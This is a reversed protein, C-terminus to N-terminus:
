LEEITSQTMTALHMIESKSFLGNQDRQVEGVIIGFAMVYIRDSILFLEELESSIALVGLDEEKLDSILQYFESKAGVDIGRTPEDLILVKPKKMLWKSLVVKQQNGGSLSGVPMKTTSLRISLSDVYSEIETSLDSRRLFGLNSFEDLSPLSMNDEISMNLAIGETRRSEPVWCVGADIMNKVSIPNIDKNLVKVVGDNIERLGFISEIMETRGSGVLGFMGVVEGKNVLFSNGKQNNGSLVGFNNFVNEVTLAPKLSNTQSHKQYHSSVEKGVMHQILDSVETDNSIEDIHVVAGDRLAVYSDCFDIVENLKHSIYIICVGQEKLHKIVKELDNIEKDSLSSTPEDFILIKPVTIIATAIEVLQRQASSLESIPTDISIEPAISQLTKKAIEMCEKKNIIGRLNTEEQGLVINEWVNMTEILALEQHVIRVQMNQAFKPSFDEVLKDEIYLKGEDPKVSGALINMLTSKGAGNEGILGVVKSEELSFSIDKLAVVGGFRKTINEFRVVEHNHKKEEAIKM